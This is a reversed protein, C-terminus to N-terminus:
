DNVKVEELQWGPLKASLDASIKAVDGRLIILPEGYFAQQALQMLQNPSLAQLKLNIAQISQPALRLVQQHIFQTESLNPNDQTLLAEGILYTKLAALEGESAPTSALLKLHDLIGVVFAGTHEIATSGYFKISTSLPANACQGYIGYTLGRKERLDYYLRGSFSRGLLAALSRCALPMDQASLHKDDLAYGIRVQTQVSGPADILYLTRSQPPQQTNILHSPSDTNIRTPWQSLSQKIDFETQAHNPLFLQWNAQAFTNQQLRSLESLSLSDFLAQNNINKNYPHATGLLKDRWVKDIEAGSFANLHKNLKLQRRINDIDIAATESFADPQWFQILLHYLHNASAPCTLSINISHLTVRTEFTELCADAQTSALSRAKEQFAVQLIDPNDFPITPSIAVLSMRNSLNQTASTTRQLQYPLTVGNPTVDIFPQENPLYINGVQPLNPQTDFNALSPAQTPTFSLPTQQCAGLIVAILGISMTQLANSLRSTPMLCNYRFTKMM